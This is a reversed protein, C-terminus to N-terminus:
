IFCEGEVTDCTAAGCCNDDTTCPGGCCTGSECTGSCCEHNATCTGGTPVCTCPVFDCETGTTQERTTPGCVLMLGAADGPTILAEDFETGQPVSATCLADCDFGTVGPNCTSVVENPNSTKRYLCTCCNVVEPLCPPPGGCEGNVCEQGEACRNSCSGCHRENKQLNVCRGKCCTQNSRCRNRCSGCHRENTRLNVCREGCRTQGESCRDDDAWAVGPLSGLASGLLLGGMLRPAKGRSLSGSALARALQDLSRERTQESM